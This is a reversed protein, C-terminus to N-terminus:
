NINGSRRTQMKEILLIIFFTIISISFMALNASFLGRYTDPGRRKIDPHNDVEDKAIKWLIGFIICGVLGTGTGYLLTAITRYEKAKKNTIYYIIPLGMFEIVVVTICINIIDNNHLNTVAYLESM